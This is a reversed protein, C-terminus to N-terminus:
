EDKVVDVRGTIRNVNIFFISGNEKELKITGGSSNGLPFFEMYLVDSDDDDISILLDEPLPRSLVLLENEVNNEDDKNEDDKQDTEDQVAYLRVEREEKHIVLCYTRKESVAHNRAFRLISSIEKTVTKMELGGSGRGIMIGVLGSAIGIIVLVIILEILTFGARGSQPGCFKLNYKDPCKHIETQM